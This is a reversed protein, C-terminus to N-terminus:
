SVAGQRVTKLFYDEYARTVNAASGMSTHAAFGAADAAPRIRGVRVEEALGVIGIHVFEAHFAIRPRTAM